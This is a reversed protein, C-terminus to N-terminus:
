LIFFFSPIPHPIVKLAESVINIDFLMSLDNELNLIIRSNVFEEESEIHAIPAKIVSKENINNNNTNTNNTNYVCNM